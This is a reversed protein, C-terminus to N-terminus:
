TNTNQKSKFDNEIAEIRKKYDALQQRYQEKIFKERLVWITGTILLTGIVATVVVGTVNTPENVPETKPSNKARRDSLNGPRAKM